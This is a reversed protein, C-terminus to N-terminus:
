TVCWDGNKYKMVGQGSIKNLSFNGEYMDGNSFRKVGLGAYVPLAALFKPMNTCRNRAIGSQDMMRQGAPQDDRSPVVGWSSTDCCDCWQMCGLLVSGLHKGTIANNVFNGEFVDGNSYTITGTGHMEGRQFTGCYVNKNPFQRTGSGHIEDSQFEGEYWGGDPFKLKGTGTAPASPILMGGTPKCAAAMCAAAM